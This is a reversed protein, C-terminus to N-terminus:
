ARMRLTPFSGRFQKAILSRILQAKTSATNGAFGIRVAGAVASKLTIQMEGGAVQLLYGEASSVFQARTKAFCVELTQRLVALREANTASTGSTSPVVHLALWTERAVAMMAALAADFVLLGAGPGVRRAVMVVITAAIFAGNFWRLSSGKWLTPTRGALLVISWVVVAAIYVVLWPGVPM